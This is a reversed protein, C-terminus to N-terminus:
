RTIYKSDESYAVSKTWDQHKELKQIEKGDILNWIRVTKSHSGSAIFQGDPSYAVGM